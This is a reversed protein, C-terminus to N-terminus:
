FIQGGGFGGSGSKSMRSAGEGACRIADTIWYVFTLRIEASQGSWMILPLGLGTSSAVPSGSGKSLLEDIYGVRLFVASDVLRIM